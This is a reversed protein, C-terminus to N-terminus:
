RPTLELPDSEIDLYDIRNRCVWNLTPGEPIPNASFKEVAMSYQEDTTASNRIRSMNATLMNLADHGIDARFATVRNNPALSFLFYDGDEIMVDLVSQVMEDNPNVLVNYHGFGYFEFAFHIVEMSSNGLLSHGFNMGRATVEQPIQEGPRLALFGSKRGLENVLGMGLCPADSEVFEKMFPRNVSLAPRFPLTDSM